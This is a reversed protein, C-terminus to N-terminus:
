VKTQYPRPVQQERRSIRKKEAAANRALLPEVKTQM